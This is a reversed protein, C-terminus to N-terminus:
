CLLYKTLNCIAIIGVDVRVADQMTSLDLNLELESSAFYINLYNLINKWGGSVWTAFINFLNINQLVM